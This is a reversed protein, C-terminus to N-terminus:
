LRRNLMDIYTNNGSTLGVNVNWDKDAFRDIARSLKGLELTQHAQVTAIEQLASDSSKSAALSFQVARVVAQMNSKANTGRTAIHPKNVRVGAKPVDLKSWIHAPIVTGSSPARWLANKPKNIAKLSGGASLFGEQGLENVQYTQGAQTPGGTWLGPVGAIKVSITKGDLSSIKNVATNIESSFAKSSNAIEQMPKVTANTRDRLEASKAAQEDSAKASAEAAKQMNLVEDAVKEVTTLLPKSSNNAAELGGTLNDRLDLVAKAADIKTQKEEQALALIERQINLSEDRAAKEESAIEDRIKKEELSAAKEINAIEKNRDIRELQAAAQLDGGAAEAELRRRQQDALAQEAPGLERLAEIRTNATQRVLELEKNLSSIRETSAQQINTLEAQLTENLLFRQLQASTQSAADRVASIAQIQAVAQEGEISFPDIDNELEAQLEKIMNTLNAVTPALAREAETLRGFAQATEDVSAATVDLTAKQQNFANTVLNLEKKLGDLLVTNKNIGKQEEVRIAEEIAGKRNALATVQGQLQELADRAANLGAVAGTAGAGAQRLAGSLDRVAQAESTFAAGSKALVRELKELAVRAGDGSAAIAVFTGVATGVKIGALTSPLTLLGASLSSVAAGAIGGAVAFAGVIGTFNGVATVVPPLGSGLQKYAKNSEAFGDGAKALGLSVREWALALGTVPKQLTATPGQLEQLTTKLSDLRAQSESAIRGTEKNGNNFAAFVVSVAALLLGIPGLTVLLEKLALGVGRLIGQTLLLGKSFLTSATGASFFSGRLSAKAANVEGLRTNYGGLIAELKAIGRSLSGIRRETPGTAAGLSQMLSSTNSLKEKSANLRSQLEGIRTKVNNISSGLGAGELTLGRFEQRVSGIGRFISAFGQFTNLRALSRGLGDGAGAARTFSQAVESIGKTVAPGAIDGLTKKLQILPAILRSLIVVGIAQAVGPIELLPNIFNTISSIISLFTRGLSLVAAITGGIVDTFGALITGVSKIVSLKTVSSLFDVFTAQLRFLSSIVPEFQKAFTELSLQNLTDFQNRVQDITVNGKALGDAADAASVGLRGFLLSAKSLRPLVDILVDSTIQGTKVLDELEEVAVGVANAFDTKFAPDAESIQQTLEEAQLKGKAFAQIVGNMVRRARDGSIGFAAFRSSLSETIKSVDGITGGSNLVVPTLQQFGQRVTSLSVGLGLAIRSSENFAQSAGGAGAGIAEFALKIQQLGALANILQNFSGSLQNLVISASQLGNTIQTLGNAFSILGGANLGVKARDWFGSATAQDLSRQLQQVKTNQAAWRDSVLQVKAGLSSVGIEYKAIQDRAQKAENVQQRLSTVSGREVRQIQKYQNEIANTVSLREKEVAVLSKAGNIDTVTELVLKKTVTGGFADNVARAAGEAGSQLDRLLKNLENASVKAEFELVQAM